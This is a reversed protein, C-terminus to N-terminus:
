AAPGPMSVVYGKLSLRVEDGTRSVFGRAALKAVTAEIAEAPVFDLVARLEALTCAAGAAAALGLVAVDRHTVGANGFVHVAAPAGAGGFFTHFGLLAAIAEGAPNMRQQVTHERERWSFTLPAAVWAPLEARPVYDALQADIAAACFAVLAERDEETLTAELTADPGRGLRAALEAVLGAHPYGLALIMRSRPAGDEVIAFFLSGVGHGPLDELLERQRRAHAEAALEADITDDDKPDHSL